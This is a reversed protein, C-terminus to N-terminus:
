APERRLRDILGLLDRWDASGPHLEGIHTHRIVGRRDVVYLAPWYRNGFARWIAYDNDIAVPYKVELRAVAAKVNDLNRERELEPTHVGVIVVESDPLLARLRRMAPVTRRCNICDFTWFEVLVVRGRLDAAALPPSNIWHASRLAPARRDQAHPAGAGLGAGAAAGLTTGALTWAALRTALIRASM